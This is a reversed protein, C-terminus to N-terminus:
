VGSSFDLPFKVSPLPTAGYLATLEIEVAQLLRPGLDACVAQVLDFMELPLYYSSVAFAVEEGLNRHIGLECKPPIIMVKRESLDSHAIIKNRANIIDDHTKQLRRDSFQRWQRPLSGLPKNDSFPRAYCTVTSVLLPYYLPHNIRDVTERFLNCSTAAAMIDTLAVALKYLQKKKDSRLLAKIM